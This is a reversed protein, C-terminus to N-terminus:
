GGHEHQWSDGWMWLALGGIIGIIISAVMSSAANTLIFAILFIIALAKITIGATRSFKEFRGM